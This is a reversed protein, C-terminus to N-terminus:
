LESPPNVDPEREVAVDRQSKREERRRLKEEKKTQQALNRENREFRNKCACRLRYDRSNFAGPNCSVDRSGRPSTCGSL